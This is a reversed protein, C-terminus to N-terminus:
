SFPVVHWRLSLGRGSQFASDNSGCLLPSLDPESDIRFEGFAMEVLKEGHQFDPVLVGQSLVDDHVELSLGSLRLYLHPRQYQQM